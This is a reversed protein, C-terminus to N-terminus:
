LGTCSSGVAEADVICMEGLQTMDTFSLTSDHTNNVNCSWEIRDGAALDLIGNWGGETTPINPKPNTVTSSYELLLPEDWKDADYILDRQAGRIRNVTFRTNNAHRHGYLWLLRGAGAVTCSYPGLTTMTHPPISISASGIKFWEIAPQTVQAADRYWFNVWIERLQPDPTTNIAHFSVNIGAHAKLPLGVGQDEPAIIGGAPYDGSVNATAIRTGGTPDLGASVTIIIHHATPRLRYQRYFFYIDKDNSSTLPFNTTEEQGPQMIYTAEPHDYNTPGVHLQFGQDPPPAAICHEDGAYQTHLGCGDPAGAAGTGATGAAGGAGWSGGAGPPAGATGGPPAGGVPAGGVSTVGGAAATAGGNSTVVGPSGGAGSVATGAAGMTGATGVPSATAGAGVITSPPTGGTGTVNSPTGDAGSSCGALFAVGTALVATLSSAM